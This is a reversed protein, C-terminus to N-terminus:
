KLHGEKNTKKDHKEAQQRRQLVSSCMPFFSSLYSFACVTNCAKAPLSGKNQSSGRFTNFSEFCKSVEFNCNYLENVKTLEKSCGNSLRKTSKWKGQM